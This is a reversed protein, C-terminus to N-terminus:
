MRALKAELEEAWEENEGSAHYAAALVRTAERNLPQIAYASGADHIALDVDGRQLAVEASLTLLAPDRYGGNRIAHDLFVAASQWDQNSIAIRALLGAAEINGPDGIFYRALLILAEDQRDLSQLAALRKRTMVWPQRIAAAKRYHSNSASNRGAALAADGALSLADASGPFQRLFSDALRHAEETQGEVIRARSLRVADQGSVDAGSVRRNGQGDVHIVVLNSSRPTAAFDLYEAAKDREDLAEHARGVLTRLYPSSEARKALEAYRYVLEKDSGSLSLARALMQQVRRNDPQRAALRELTQAASAYNENEIDIIGSLLMAAPMEQTSKDSRLLLSRALDFKEARAALVSQLFYIRREAPNIEAIQRIVALMDRARGLEGLTAAYDYLLDTNKPNKELAREFWPLAARMGESDRVLQARLQLARPNNPDLKVAHTSAEVALTQEGGNYRLRAIDVWLGANERNVALAKDFAQGAAPLNGEDMELRGLMHFGHSRTSDSFEGSELWSRAEALQGQLLEAEGLWAAIETRNTGSALLDRLIVEAQVADGAAMSVRAREVPDLDPESECGVLALAACAFGWKFSSLDLRFTM